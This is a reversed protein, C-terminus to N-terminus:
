ANELLKRYVAATERATKEWSFKAAQAIGLRRYEERLSESQALLKMADAMAVEDKPDVLRAADGVAEALGGAPSCIVPTGCAMAELPPLGFGEYFSPYVLAAAGQVTSVLDADSLYGVVKVNQKWPARSLLARIEESKWGWGGALVLPFQERTAASLRSYARLLGPINKRPELNGVFLFYNSPLGLRKKAADVTEREGPAFGERPALAIASIQDDKVKLHEIMDSKTAQSIAIFHTGRRLSRMFYKEYRQVRHAPHFEPYLLVSLDMVSLLTPLRTRFAIADPEHFLAYQGRAALWAFYKDASAQVSGKLRAVVKGRLGGAGGRVIGAGAGLGRAVWHASPLQSLRVVDLDPAAKPFHELLQAAYHGIGSRQRFLILDNFLISPM